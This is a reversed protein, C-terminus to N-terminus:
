ENKKGEEGEIVMCDWQCESCHGYDGVKLVPEKSCDNELIPANCCNSVLM